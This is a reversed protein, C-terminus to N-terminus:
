RCHQLHFSKVWRDPVNTKCFVNLGHRERLTLMYHCPLQMSQYFYCDCVTETLRYDRKQANVKYTGGEAELEDEGKKAVESLICKFAYETLHKRISAVLNSESQAPVKLIMNVAHHSKESGLSRILKKLDAFFM